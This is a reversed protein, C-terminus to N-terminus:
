LIANEIKIKKVRIKKIERYECIQKHYKTFLRYISFSSVTASLLFFSVAGYLFPISSNELWFYLIFIINFSFMILSLYMSVKAMYLIKKVDKIHRKEIKRMSFGFLNLKYMLFNILSIALLVIGAVVLGSYDNM